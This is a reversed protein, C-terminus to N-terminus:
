HQAGKTAGPDNVAPPGSRRGTVPSGGCDGQGAAVVMKEAHRGRDHMVAAERLRKGGQFLCADDSGGVGHDRRAAGEQPKVCM